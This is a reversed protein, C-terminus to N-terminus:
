VPSSCPFLLPSVFIRGIAPARFCSQRVRLLAIWDPCATLFDTRSAPHLACSRFPIHARGFLSPHLILRIPLVGLIPLVISSLLSISILAEDSVTQFKSVSVELNGSHFGKM